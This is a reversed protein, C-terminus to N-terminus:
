RAKPKLTPEDDEVTYEPTKTEPGPGPTSTDKNEEAEMEKDLIAMKRALKILMVHKVVGPFKKILKAIYVMVSVGDGDADKFFLRSLYNLLQMSMQQLSDNLRKQFEKELKDYDINYCEYYIQSIEGFLWDLIEEAEAESETEEKTKESGPAANKSNSNNSSELLKLIEKSRGMDNESMEGVETKATNEIEEKNEILDAIESM